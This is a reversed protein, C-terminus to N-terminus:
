PRSVGLPLLGQYEYKLLHLSCGCDIQVYLLIEEELKMMRALIWCETGCTFATEFICLM